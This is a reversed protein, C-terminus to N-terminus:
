ALQDMRCDHPDRDPRWRLFRAPHRFRLGDLKDYAVECVRLPRVPVWDQLMEGAVWRGASGPLRGVPSRGLSFGHEWPHGRLDSAIPVLDDFLARRQAETFQSAVGVHVLVGDHHLGLLLSAIGAAELLPRFGGVVCDATQLPKIKVWGRRGPEYRQDRRKAV